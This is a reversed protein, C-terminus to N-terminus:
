RTVDARSARQERTVAEALQQDIHVCDEQEQASADIIPARNLFQFIM